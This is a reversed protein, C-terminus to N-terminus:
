LIGVCFRLFALMSANPSFASLVASVLACTATLRIVKLRGWTDAMFGWFHSSVVIGLFAISSVVGLETTTMNLDCNAFPLIFAISINEITAGMIVLGSLIVILVNFRGCGTRFSM